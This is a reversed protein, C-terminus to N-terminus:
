WLERGIPPGTDFEEHINEDTVRSLLEELPWTPKPCSKIVLAGDIVSVDVESQQDLGVESAFPKPFKVALDNGWRQIRAKM